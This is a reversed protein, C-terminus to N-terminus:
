RTAIYCETQGNPPDGTPVYVCSFGEVSGTANYFTNNLGAGATWRVRQVRIQTSQASVTRPSHFCFVDILVAALTIFCLVYIKKM